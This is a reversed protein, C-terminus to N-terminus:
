TLFAYPGNTYKNVDLIQEQAYKNYADKQIYKIAGKPDDSPSWQVRFGLISSNKKYYVPEKISILLHAHLQNYKPMLEYGITQVALTNFREKLIKIVSNIDYTTVYDKVQHKAITLMYENQITYKM